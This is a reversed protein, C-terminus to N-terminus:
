PLDIGKFHVVQNPNNKSSWYGCLDGLYSFTMGLKAAILGAASQDQRHFMFRPDKSQGDHARSGEFMGDKAAQIFMRAFSQGIPHEMNVGFCGTAADPMKEAQDRTVQFYELIRDNCTQACNYGSTPLYYGDADIRDLIPQIHGTLVVSADLWLIHTYGDLIACELNDAKLNYPTTRPIDTLTYGDRAMLAIEPCYTRISRILRGQGKPYNAGVAANIICARM